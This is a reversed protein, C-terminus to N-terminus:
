GAERDRAGPPAGCGSAADILEGLQDHATTLQAIQEGIREREREMLLVADRTVTDSPADVCPLLAAITASNLGAAYLRRLLHVREVTDAAYFRQAGTTRRPSLLGQEEYYRLARASAGTRHALEGIRM